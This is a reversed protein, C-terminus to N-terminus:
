NYYKDFYQSWKKRDGIKQSYRHNRVEMFQLSELKKRMNDLYEEEKRLRKIERGEKIILVIAVIITIIM